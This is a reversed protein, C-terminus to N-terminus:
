CKCLPVSHKGHTQQKNRTHPVKNLMQYFDRSQIHNHSLKYYGVTLIPDYAILLFHKTQVPLSSVM